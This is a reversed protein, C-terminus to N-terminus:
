DSRVEVKLCSAFCKILDSQNAFDQEEKTQIANIAALHTTLHYIGNENLFEEVWATKQTRLEVTVTQLLVKTLPITTKLKEVMQKATTGQLFINFCWKWPVKKEAKNMMCIFQWQQEPTKFQARLNQLKNEDTVGMQQIAKEYQKAVEESSPMPPEADSDARKRPSNLSLADTPPPKKMVLSKVRDRFSM